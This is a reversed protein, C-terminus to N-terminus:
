LVSCDFDSDAVAQALEDSQGACAFIERFGRDDTVIAHSLRGVQKTYPLERIRAGETDAQAMSAFALTTGNSATKGDQTHHFYEVFM